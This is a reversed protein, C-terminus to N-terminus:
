SARRVQAIRRRLPAPAVAAVLAAAARASPAVLLSRVAEGRAPGPQDLRLLAIASTARGEAVQHRFARRYGALRPDRAYASACHALARGTRLKVEPAEHGAAAVTNSGTHMRWSALRRPVYVAAGGERCLHYLTFNDWYDGAAAVDDWDVAGNRWLTGLGLFTARGVLALDVFPQHVGGALQARGEEESRKETEPELVRDEADVVRHDCFALVAGPHEELAAVLVELYQPDVLDDDHVNTVYRGRALRMGDTVNRGIGRQREQRVVRIRPDGLADLLPTPDQPSHDDIVVLEWDALTQARVSAVARVLMDTRRYSSMVVSVLPHAPGPDATGAATRAATEAAPAVAAAATAPALNQPVM